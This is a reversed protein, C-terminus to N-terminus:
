SLLFRLDKVEPEVVSRFGERQNNIPYEQSKVGVTPLIDVIVELGRGGEVRFSDRFQYLGSILITSSVREQSWKDSIEKVYIKL